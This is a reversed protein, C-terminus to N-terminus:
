KGASLFYHHVIRTEGTLFDLTTTDQQKEIV